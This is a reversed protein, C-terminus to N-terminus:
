SGKGKGKGKEGRGIDMKRGKGGRGGRGFRQFRILLPGAQLIKFIKYSLVHAKPCKSNFYNFHFPKIESTEHTPISKM